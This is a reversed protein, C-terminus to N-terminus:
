DVYIIKRDESIFYKKGMYNNVNDSYYKMYLYHIYKKENAIKGM